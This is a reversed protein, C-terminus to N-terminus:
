TTPLPRARPSCSASLLEPVCRASAPPRRHSEGAPLILSLFGVNPFNNPMKDIFRPTGSRRHLAPTVCITAGLGEFASPPLERVAEPLQHRGRSQPQALHGVRGLYPLESTGEVDPHSALIQELLTSGSRPL